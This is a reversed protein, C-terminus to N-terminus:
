RQKVPQRLITRLTAAESRRPDSLYVEHHRGNFDLGHAPMYERHLRALTPGEDDYSGVHLIQVARGEDYAEFRLLALAALDKKKATTSELARTVMATTIWTPQMIMMTWRWEEKARRTFAAPDAATWLGELPPIVYDQGLDKKSAFKVAYSVSYLAEVAERYSTATNPNGEGDVMLFSMRPVDVLTFDRSSPAYLERLEKRFDVKSV